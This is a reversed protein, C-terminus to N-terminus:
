AGLAAFSRYGRAMLLAFIPIIVMLHSSFLIWRRAKQLAQADPLSAQAAYTKQWQAVARYCPLALAVL